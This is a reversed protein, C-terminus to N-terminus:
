GSLEATATPQAPSTHTTRLTDEASSAGRSCRCVHLTGHARGDSARCVADVVSGTGCKAGRVHVSFFVRLDASRKAAVSPKTATVLAVHM